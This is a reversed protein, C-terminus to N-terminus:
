APQRDSLRRRMGDSARNRDIDIRDRDPDMTM